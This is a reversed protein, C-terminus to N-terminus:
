HGGAAAPLTCAVLTKRREGTVRTPRAGTGARRRRTTPRRWAGGRMSLLQSTSSAKPLGAEAGKTYWQVAQEDEKRVRRIIGMYFMAYAHGQGAAKEMHAM